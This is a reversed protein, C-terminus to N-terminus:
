CNFLFHKRFNKDKKKIKFIYKLCNLFFDEVKKNININKLKKRFRKNM